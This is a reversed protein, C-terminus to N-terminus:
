HNASLYDDRLVRRMMKNSATRPLKKVITVDSVKFLPSLKERIKKSFMKKLMEVEEEIVHKEGVAAVIVLKSPGGKPPEFAIAGCEEVWDVVGNVANEIEVSSVKIGGLNMTDDCRGHARYYTGSVREFEDGHRRMVIGSDPHRPMGQFYVKKHDKNLLTTSGGFMPPVIALEGKRVLKANGKEDGDESEILVFDCGCVITSFTAPSQPQVCTCSVFAGGIETGGCYEIVPRYGKARGMLWLYDDENSAEGSSSFCRVSSWDHIPGAQFLGEYTDETAGDHKIVLTGDRGGMFGFDMWGKVISPVIGLMTVKCKEVFSCFGSTVPTDYYLALSAGNLFASYLIWPGMMWGLNTPWCIVDGWKIDQHMHSDFASKLPTLQTWPIAKPEGTTGSSFLINTYTYPSSNVCEFPKTEVLSSAESMFSSWSIDGEKLEVALTGKGEVVLCRPTNSQLVRTYLPLEKNARLIVDQTVMLKCNCIALRTNIMDPSFSDAISVVVGGAAITGLYAIVAEITMPMDIAVFDGVGVGLSALGRAFTLCQDKLDQFTMKEIETGGVKQFMVATAQPDRGLWCMEAANMEAEVFFRSAQPDELNRACYETPFKKLALKLENTMEELYEAPEEHSWKRLQEFNSFNHRTMMQHAATNEM